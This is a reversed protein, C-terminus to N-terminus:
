VAGERAMKELLEDMYDGMARRFSM